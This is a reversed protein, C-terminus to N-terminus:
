PTPTPRDAFLSGSLSQVVPPGEGTEGYDATVSELALRYRTGAFTFDVWPEALTGGQQKSVIPALDVSLEAPPPADAESVGAASAKVILQGARLDLIIPGIAGGSDTYVSVSRLYFPTAAVPVRSNDLDRWATRYRNREAPQGADWDAGLATLVVYSGDQDAPWTVGYRGMVERVGRKGEATGSLYDIIGRAEAVEEGTWGGRPPSASRDAGADMVLLDLRLLQHQVPLNAYNWPGVSLLLLLAGALAPILRIDGRRLLFLAALAAAWVGGALLLQRESTLGYADVRVCVAVFFLALPVLTLPFWLRRFLRVLPRSRLFPPDLALWTAAGVVVFGMVMWGITGQPLQQTIVIQLTYGLLILAYVFLLPVLVFQGLFGIAQGILAPSEAETPDLESLRPLTSLWYVPTLFLATFPLLVQYFLNGIQWGFLTALSQEIVLLGLAIVCLAAGSIAATAVALHNILWFRRQQLERELGRRLQTFPSVSLWLVAVVPLAYPVLWAIDTVQFAAIALLPLVYRVALGLMRESPRSEIFYVGAVACVAATALGLAARAWVEDQMGAIGNMAGIVGATNLAALLIAFPFRRFAAVFDPAQRELWSRVTMM